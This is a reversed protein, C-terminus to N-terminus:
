VMRKSLLEQTKTLLKKLKHADDYNDFSAVLEGSRNNIVEWWIPIPKTTNEVRQVHYLTIPEIAYYRGSSVRPHGGM